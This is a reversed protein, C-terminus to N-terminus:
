FLGHSTVRKTKINDDVNNTIISKFACGFCFSTAIAILILTMIGHDTNKM